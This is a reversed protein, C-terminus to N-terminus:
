YVEVPDADGAMVKSCYEIIGEVTPLEKATLHGYVPRDNRSALIIDQGM